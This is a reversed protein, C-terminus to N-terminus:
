PGREGLRVGTDTLDRPKDARLEALRSGPAVRVIPRTNRVGPGDVFSPPSRHLDELVFPLKSRGAPESDAVNRLLDDVRDALAADDVADRADVRGV